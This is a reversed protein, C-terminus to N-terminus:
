VSFRVSEFDPSITVSIIGNEDSWNSIEAGDVVIKNIQKRSGILQLEIQQYSAMFDGEVSREIVLSDSTEQCRFTLWRSAGNQYDLGEGADEYLWTEGSDTYVRLTLTDVAQEEAYQMVPWMPLVTGSKIFIPLTDLPAEVNIIQKGAYRQNTNFNYWDGEPLYVTRRISAPKLIPAVLVKEGLLYCDDINRLQTNKPEAMFVPRIIPYGKYANQAFATYLYPMLRYRLAIAERIIDEYPQGFSWPEQRITNVASHNRFFPMLAGAQTWRALLEGDCDRGFGGIDAGTFALGSLGMQLTMSISLALEDWTSLNDGTWSSTYRQAGAAGARVISFQRKNPRHKDLATRSAMGMLTGYINHLELHNGGRGEKDQQTYDPLSLPPLEDDFILPENMDNWIGDVDCALLPSLQEVWWQRAKESTFDPFHCLGPWVVGAVPKGDPYNIFIDQELGSDYGVYGEDVKTGPDLIIVLKMGMAHLKDIMGKMDPFAEKNWTFIRYEDMYHIDLYITDCPINRDRMEKAISLVEKEDMYSYRCQHYGIAWLPPMPMRGTVQTYANMVNNVDDGFFLYYSLQGMESTIRLEDPNTAGIDFIGRASNDWLLGYPGKDNVGLYFSTCYNVPDDGREFGAPDTNWFDLKQGRLNLEFAREGTGYSAENDELAISLGVQGDDSFIAGDKTAFRLGKSIVELSSDERRISYTYHGVEILLYDDKDRIKLSEISSDLSDVYYSFYDSFDDNEPQVRVRLIKDAIFYLEIYANECRLLVRNGQVDYSKLEGLTQWQAEKDSSKIAHQADYQAVIKKNDIIQQQFPDIFESAFENIEQKKEDQKKEDPM